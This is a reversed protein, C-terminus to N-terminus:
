DLLALNLVAAPMALEDAPDKPISRLSLAIIVLMLISALGLGVRLFGLVGDREAASDSRWAALVRAKLAFSPPGCAPRRVRSAARFLRPLFDDKTKM